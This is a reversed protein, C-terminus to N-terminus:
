SFEVRDGDFEITKVGVEMEVYQGGPGEVWVGESIIRVSVDEDEDFQQFWKIMDKVTM